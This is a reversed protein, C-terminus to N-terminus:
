QVTSEVERVAKKRAVEADIAAKEYKVTLEQTARGIAIEIDALARKQMEEISVAVKALTIRTELQADEERQKSKRMHEAAELDMRLQGQQEALALKQDGKAQTVSMDAEGKARVVEAEAEALAQLDEEGGMGPLDPGLMTPPAQQLMQAIQQSIQADAEPTTPRLPANGTVHQLPAGLAQGALVTYYASMHEARHSMYQQQFLPQAAEPLSTFWRDLVTMHAMHDQDFAVTIPKGVMLASNEAVADLRVAEEPPPMLEDLGTTKLAEHMRKHVVRMDYLDPNAQALQLGTQAQAIRQTTSTARPDSVPLVDVRGDYDDRLVFVEEGQNDFPYQDPLYLYNLDHLIKFEQKQSNHCRKHVATFVRSGVELLAVTTGVPTNQNADSINTDATHAFSKAAEVVFGLLAFLTQSPEKFPLPMLAKSIDDVPADIDVFEGPSIEIEGTKARGKLKFGGQLNAYAAADLLSRLAGTAADGLGGIAHYLGYGYYGLGPLFRYEVFRVVRRMKEDDENWNRYVGVVQQSDLDITVCYPLNFGSDSEFGPLDINLYQELLTYSYDDTNSPPTTGEIDDTVPTSQEGAASPPVDIEEYIGEITRRQYEDQSMTVVHTFRSATKLNSTGYAVVLDEAEIFQSVNRELTDDWWCKKFTMGVLPLHFLMRDMEEYYEEMEVMVQYNMHTAVRVAQAEKSDSNAGLKKMRVPGEPPMLEAIAQAQFAVAAEVIVPHQVKSLGRATRRDGAEDDQAQPSVTKLGKEYLDSWGERSTLDDSYGEFVEAGLHKLYDIDLELILNDYHDSDAPIRNQTDDPEGIAVTGDGLDEIPTGWDTEVVDQFIGRPEPM